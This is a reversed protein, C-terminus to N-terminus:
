GAVASRLEAEIQAGAARDLPVFAASRETAGLPAGTVDLGDDEILKSDYRKVEIERLRYISVAPAGSADSVVTLLEAGVVIWTDYPRKRRRM